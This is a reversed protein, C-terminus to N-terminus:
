RSEVRRKGDYIAALRQIENSKTPQCRPQSLSVTLFPDNHKLIGYNEQQDGDSYGYARYHSEATQRLFFSVSPRKRVKALEVIKPTGSSQKIRRASEIAAFNATEEPSRNRLEGGRYDLAEVAFEKLERMM